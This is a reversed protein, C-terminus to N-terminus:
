AKKLLRNEVYLDEWRSHVTFFPVDDPVSACTEAIANLAEACQKCSHGHCTRCYVSQKIHFRQPSPKGDLQYVWQDM